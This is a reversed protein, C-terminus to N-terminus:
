QASAEKGEITDAFSFNDLEVSMDVAGECNFILRGGSGSDHAFEKKVIEQKGKLSDVKINTANPRNNVELVYTEEFIDVTGNKSLDVAFVQQWNGDKTVYISLMKSCLFEVYWYPRDKGPAQECVIFAYGSFHDKVPKIELRFDYEPPLQPAFTLVSHKGTTNSSTMRLVGKQKIVDSNPAIIWQKLDNADDFNDTIVGGMLSNVLLMAVLLLIKKM